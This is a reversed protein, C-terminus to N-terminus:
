LVSMPDINALVDVNGRNVSPPATKLSQKILEQLQKVDACRLLFHWRYRNRVKALPAPAPGRIQIEPFNSEKLTEMQENLLNATQIVLSEDEGRLLISAAHSFPPYLLAKRLAVEEQYFRRYDHEQAAQISYHDPNYTQVIVDGGLISRGSRGAVQTILNFAREGSRFDPLNLAIDANIVGVLTVNPFDLGKAIMQTGVLIDFEGDKFAELISKHAGKRTTTDTDMRAVKAAPFAKQIEMEVKQTGLGLYRIYPSFCDPCEKPPPYKRNCHHCVMLKTDFHYTLSIACQECREVHGCERCFVYTSFGRRNLFLIVQQGLRLREEVADRLRESFISRNNKQKLEVRMDIVEVPPMAIDDVRTKLNLLRYEGRTAKYYSELSPTASGLIVVCNALEARKIAVERAHYRPPPEDQKYTTEHEEDIVILGLNEVPAFIASRPGVVIDVEGSKVRRWQDYREGPSLQSHLVTIRSLFRSAFRAVTQPTLAIEPVLVIARKGRKLVEVMVQMYVETKGSGTVGHLLFVQPSNQEIATILEKLAYAQEPTPTLPRSSDFKESGLPDRIVEISECTVLGKKGLARITNLNTGARKTLESAIMPSNGVRYESILIKLIQSQKTARPSISELAEQIEAVSKALRVALATKPKIGKKLESSIRILGKSELQALATYFSREGVRKKLQAVSIAGYKQLAKLIQTQRPAKKQLATLIENQGESILLEVKRRSIVNVGAPIACKLAEGHSSLYYGSIWKTLQLLESSFFPEDDLCDLIPKIEVHAPTEPTDTLKVIVGELERKEGFPALVRVGLRAKSHFEEPLSYTFTQNM